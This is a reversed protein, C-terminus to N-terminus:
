FKRSKLTFIWNPKFILVLLIILLVFWEKYSIPLWIQIFLFYEMLVYILAGLFIFEMRWLWVLIMIWIWKLLFFIWDTSKISWSNLILYSALFILIFLFIFYFNVYNHIKVWLVKESNENEFIWSFNKWFFSFKHFYILIFNLILFVWILFSLSINWNLSISNAWYLFNIFNEVFISIWLTFILWFLDRKVLNPFKKQIFFNSAFFIFITFFLLLFFELSFWNNSFLYLSYSILIIIIWISFNLYKSYSYFASILLAVIWYVITNLFIYELM